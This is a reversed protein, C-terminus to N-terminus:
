CLLRAGAVETWRAFGKRIATFGTRVFDIGHM